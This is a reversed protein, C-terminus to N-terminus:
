AFIKQIQSGTLPCSYRYECFAIDKLQKGIKAATYLDFRPSDADVKREFLSVIVDADSKPLSGTALDCVLRRYCQDPDNSEISAVMMDVKTNEDTSRKRRGFDNAIAALAAGKLLLAGGGLVVAGAPTLFGTVGAAAGLGTLTIAAGNGAAVGSITGLLASTSSLFCGLIALGIFVKPNM